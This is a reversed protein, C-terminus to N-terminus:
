MSSTHLKSIQRTHKIIAHREIINNYEADTMLTGIDM